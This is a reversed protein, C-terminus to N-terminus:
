TTRTGHRWVGHINLTTTIDTTSDGDILVLDARAGPRIRGRDTLGFRRAPTATAARLAQIATLGAAVFLALEHDVSVGHALGGLSPVPISVDTVAHLAAVTALVDDFNGQPYTKFSSSLVSLSPHSAISSAVWRWWSVLCVIM